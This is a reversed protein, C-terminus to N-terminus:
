RVEMEQNLYQERVEIHGDVKGLEYVAVLTASLLIWLATILVAVKKESDMNM